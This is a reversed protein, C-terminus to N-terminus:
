ERCVVPCPHPSFSREDNLKILMWRCVIFVVIIIAAARFIGLISEWKNENVFVVHCVQSVASQCKRFDAFCIRYFSRSMSHTHVVREVTPIRSLFKETKLNEGFVKLKRLGDKSSLILLHGKELEAYFKECGFIWNVLSSNQTDETRLSPLFKKKILNAYIINFFFKDHYNPFRTFFTEMQIEATTARSFSFTDFRIPINDRSWSVCLLNFHLFFNM